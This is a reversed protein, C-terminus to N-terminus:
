REGSLGDMELKKLLWFSPAMCILIAPGVHIIFDVFTIGQDALMVNSSLAQPSLQAGIIINPPDGIQTAAGG